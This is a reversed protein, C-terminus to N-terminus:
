NEVTHKDLQLQVQHVKDVCIELSIVKFKM